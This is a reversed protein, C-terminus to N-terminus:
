YKTKVNEEIIEIEKTSLDYLKYVLLNIEEEWNEIEVDNQGKTEQKKSIIKEIYNIIENQIKIKNNMPKYIPLNMLPEKDLQYIKGQMKGKNKLCYKILNSNLLGTLYKDVM